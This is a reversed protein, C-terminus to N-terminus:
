NIPQEKEDIPEEGLRQVIGVQLEIEKAQVVTAWTTTLGLLCGFLVVGLSRGSM